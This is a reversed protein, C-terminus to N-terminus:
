TSPTEPPTARRREAHLREIWDLADLCSQPVTYPVSGGAAKGRLTREYVIGGIEFFVARGFAEQLAELELDSWINRKGGGPADFSRTPLIRAGDSPGRADANVIEYVGLMFAWLVRDAMSPRQDCVSAEAVSLPRLVFRVARKGPHERLKSADRTRAYEEREARAMDLAPDAASVVEIPRVLSDVHM